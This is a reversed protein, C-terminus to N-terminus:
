EKVIGDFKGSIDSLSTADWYNLCNKCHYPLSNLKPQLNTLITLEDKDCIRAINSVISEMDFSAGSFPDSCRDDCDAKENGIIVCSIDAVKDLPEEMLTNFLDLVVSGYSQDQSSYLYSIYGKELKLSRGKEYSFKAIKCAKMLALQILIDSVLRANGANGDNVKFDPVFPTKISNIVNEFESVNKMQQILNRVKKLLMEKFAQNPLKKQQILDVADDLLKILCEERELMERDVYETVPIEHNSLYTALACISMAGLPIGMDPDDKYIVMAFCKHRVFVPSGSYGKWTIDSEVGPASLELDWKQARSPNNIDGNIWREENWNRSMYGISQYKLPELYMKGLPFYGLEIVPIDKINKELKLIAVDLLEVPDIIDIVVESRGLTPFLVRLTEKHKIEHEIVHYPTLILNSAVLFGNGKTEKKGSLYSEIKVISHLREDTM